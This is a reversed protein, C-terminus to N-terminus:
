PHPPTTPPQALLAQQILMFEKDLELTRRPTSLATTLLTQGDGQPQLWIWLRRERVYLMTFVGIILLVAGLYVLVKGPARAVQFVSAQIHEFTDLQVIVPAPYAFSDSLSLVAQTMLAQTTTDPKLAPLQQQERSINLLEFLSGNFVRLLLESIRPQEDAPVNKELFQAWAALGYTNPIQVGAFLELARLATTELQTTMQPQHAPTALRAYRQAAQARLAPNQLANRMLLWSQISDDADVPIRLYRFTENASERVGVLLSRQGEIEFPLMYNHYERAQGAADRLRYTISPGVNRLTKQADTKAGTGLHDLWRQAWDVKRVDAEDTHGSALNEVNIVRLGTLELSLEQGEIPLKMQTGVKGSVKVAAQGQLPLLRMKLLSGGDDFSSQYILVGKHKAPQNVRVVAPLAEGTEHDHIVIESSFLKPMGTEYYDVIFKKLEIDFPLEQVVSGGPLSLIATDRRAGEPVSVHGRYSPNNADLRHASPITNVWGSGTYVSKGQWAMLARVMMDGDLLGGLCILVISGHAALYGLKNTMGKRAAIMTGSASPTTNDQRLQAKAQWGNQSLWLSIRQFAPEPSEHLIGQAKHHFAQLSQARIHEKYQRLDQLIKPANRAICLSTSVVLFALILLFWGASYVHDIQLFRFFEAWFPGFQNVYNIEPENQKVVTGIVSAICILSLLAIAFRMSALLETSSRLWPAYPSSRSLPTPNNPASM